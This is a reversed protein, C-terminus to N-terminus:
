VRSFITVRKEDRLIPEKMYTPKIMSAVHKLLLASQGENCGKIGLTLIDIISLLNNTVDIIHLKFVYMPFSTSKPSKKLSDIM